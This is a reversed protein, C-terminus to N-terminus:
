GRRRSKRKKTTKSKRQKRSKKTTKSGGKGKIYNQCFTFMAADKKKGLYGMWTPKEYIYSRTVEKGQLEDYDTHELNEDFFRLRAHDDSLKTFEVWEGNKPITHTKNTGITEHMERGYPPILYFYKTTNNTIKSLDVKSLKYNKLGAEDFYPLGNDIKEKYEINQTEAEKNLNELEKYYKYEPGSRDIPKKEENSFWSM